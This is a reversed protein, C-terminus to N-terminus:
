VRGSKSGAAVEPEIRVDGQVLKGIAAVTRVQQLSLCDGPGVVDGVVAIDIQGPDDDGIVGGLRDRRNERASKVSAIEVM